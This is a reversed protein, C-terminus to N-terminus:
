RRRSVHDPTIDQGANASGEVMVNQRASPKTESGPLWGMTRGCAGTADSRSSRRPMEPWSQPTVVVQTVAETRQLPISRRAKPSEAASVADFLGCRALQVGCAQAPAGGHRVDPAAPPQVASQDRSLVPHRCGLAPCSPWLPWGPARVLAYETWGFCGFGAGVRRQMIRQGTRLKTHTGQVFSNSAMRFAVSRCPINMM